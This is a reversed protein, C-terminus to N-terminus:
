KSNLVKNTLLSDVSKVLESWWSKQLISYKAKERMGLYSEIKTQLSPNGLDNKNNVWQIIAEKINKTQIDTLLIKQQLKLTMNGIVSDVKAPTANNQALLFTTSIFFTVIIFVFIRNM